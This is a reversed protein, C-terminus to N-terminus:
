RRRVSEAIEDYLIINGYPDQVPANERYENVFYSYSESNRHILICIHERLKTLREKEQRILLNGNPEKDIEKKYDTVFYTYSSDAKRISLTNDRKFRELFFSSIHHSM